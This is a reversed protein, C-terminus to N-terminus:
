NSTSRDSRRPRAEGTTVTHAKTTGATSSTGRLLAASAALFALTAGLAFVVALGSHYPGAPLGPFFERGTLAQQQAATLHAPAGTPQLLHQIRNVGLQAAFLSAVPPLSGVQGAVTVSM